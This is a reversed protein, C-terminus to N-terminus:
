QEKKINVSKVVINKRFDRQFQKCKFTIPHAKYGDLMCEVQKGDLYKNQNKGYLCLGCGYSILKIYGGIMNSGIESSQEM